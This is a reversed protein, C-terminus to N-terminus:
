QTLRTNIYAAIIRADWEDNDDDSDPLRAFEIRKGEKTTIVLKPAPPIFVVRSEGRSVVAGSNMLRGKRFVSPHFEEERREESLRREYNSRPPDEVDFDDRDNM